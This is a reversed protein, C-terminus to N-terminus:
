AKTDIRTGQGKPLAASVAAGDDGDHDNKVEPGKVEAPEPQRPPQPTAAPGVNSVTM